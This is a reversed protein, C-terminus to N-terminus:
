FLTSNITYKDVPKDINSHLHHHHHVVHKVIPEIQELTRESLSPLSERHDASYFTRWDYSCPFDFDEISTPQYPEQRERCECDIYANPIIRGNKEFPLLGKGKCQQCSNIM